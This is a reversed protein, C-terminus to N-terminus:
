EAYAHANQQEVGLCGCRLLLLRTREQGDESVRVVLSPGGWHQRTVCSTAVLNIKGDGGFTFLAHTRMGANRRALRERRCSVVFGDTSAPLEADFRGDEKVEVIALQVCAGGGAFNLLFQVCQGLTNTLQDRSQMGLDDDSPTGFAAVSM